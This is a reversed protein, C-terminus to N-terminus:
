SIFVAPMPFVMAQQDAVHRLRAATGHDSAVM